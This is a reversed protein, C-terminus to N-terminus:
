ELSAETRRLSGGRATETSRDCSSSVTMHCVGRAGGGGQVTPGAGKLWEICLRKYFLTSVQVVAAKTVNNVKTKTGIM